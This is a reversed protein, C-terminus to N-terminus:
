RVVIGKRRMNAIFAPGDGTLHSGDYQQGGDSRGATLPTHFIRKHLELCHQGLGLGKCRDLALHTIHYYESGDDEDRLDLSISGLNEGTKYITIEYGEDDFFITYENNDKATFTFEM